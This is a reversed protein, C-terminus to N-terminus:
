TCFFFFGRHLVRCAAVDSGNVTATPGRVLMGTTITGAKPQPHLQPAKGLKRQGLHHQDWKRLRLGYQRVRVRKRLM